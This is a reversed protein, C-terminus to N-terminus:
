LDHPNLVILNGPSLNGDLVQSYKESSVGLSVEIAELKGDQGVRYVMSKGNNPVLMTEDTQSIIIEVAATMGPRVDADANTLEVKVMFDVIGLNTSGVPSVEIVRGNYQKALIADFTMIVPQGVEVLNIDIESVGVDVMLSSLDDLRFAPTGPSVQDNPKSIVETITGDFPTVLSAKDLTAQAATVRAQAATIDEVAPGDKVRQWERQADALRAELLALDAPSTGDKIRQWAKQAETLQAQADLLNAEALALDNPNPPSKLNEFKQLSNEYAIQLQIRQMELGDMIQRYRRRSEWPNYQDDRKNLKKQIRDIMEQNDDLKKEKLVLNAQAQDLAAQSVPSTLTKLRRDADAVAKDAEAIAQLSTAQDVVPNRADDLADQAAEVSQLASASGMRSELLNDLAKRAAVLEAQALIDLPSLSGPDLVALVDGAQVQDGVKVYTNAVIGSTKWTLQASQDSSVTGTAGVIESVPGIDIQATEIEDTLTTSTSRPTFVLYLSAAVALVVVVGIVFYVTKKM